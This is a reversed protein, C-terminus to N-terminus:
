ELRIMFKFAIPAQAQLLADRAPVFVGPANKFLASRQGPLPRVEPILHTIARASGAMSPATADKRLACAGQAPVRDDLRYLEVVFFGAQAPNKM